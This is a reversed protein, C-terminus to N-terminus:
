SKEIVVNNDDGKGNVDENLCKMLVCLIQKNGSNADNINYYCGVKM